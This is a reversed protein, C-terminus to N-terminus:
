GSKQLPLTLESQEIEGSLFLLLLWQSYPIRSFQTQEAQATWRRVTSVDVRLMSAVFSQSWSHKNFLYLVMEPEPHEFEFNRSDIGEGIAKVNKRLSAKIGALTGVRYVSRPECM